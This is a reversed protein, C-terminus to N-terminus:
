KLVGAYRQLFRKYLTPKTSWSKILQIDKWYESEIQQWNESKWDKDSFYWAVNKLEEDYFIEEASKEIIKSFFNSLQNRFKSDNDLRKKSRKLKNIIPATFADFEWPSKVYKDWQDPEAGKKAYMKRIVKTNRVKPDMAHVLEHEGFELFENKDGFYALNFMITDTSPDMRAITGIDSVNNYYGISIEIDKGSLDKFKLFKNYENPIYPDNSDKPSKEKIKDLNRKTYDYIGELKSLIEEPVQIINAEILIDLLKIM